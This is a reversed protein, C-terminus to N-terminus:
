SMSNKKLLKVVKDMKITKKIILIYTILKFNIKSVKPIKNRWNERGWM